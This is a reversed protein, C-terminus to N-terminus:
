FHKVDKHIRKGGSCRVWVKCVPQQHPTLTGQGQVLTMHSLILDNNLFPIYSKRFLSTSEPSSSLRILPEYKACLINTVLILFALRGKNVSTCWNRQTKFLVYWKCAVSTIYTRCQTIITRCNHSMHRENFPVKQDHFWSALIM